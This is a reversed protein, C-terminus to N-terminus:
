LNKNDPRQQPRLKQTNSYLSHLIRCINQHTRTPPKEKTYVYDVSTKVFGNEQLLSEINSCNTDYDGIVVLSTHDFKQIKKVLLERQQEDIYPWFNRCLFVTNSAPVQDIDNFIDGLGFEVKERITKNAIVAFDDEIDTPLVPVFYNFFKNKTYYNAVYMDLNDMGIPANNTADNINKKNIDKAIIPFYKEANEGLKNILMMAITYAEPGNSCIHDVINIKPINKYKNVIYNTFRTWDLGGRFFYTTTRYLMKGDKDTITRRNTKFSLPKTKYETSQIQSIKM